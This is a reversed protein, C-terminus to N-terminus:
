YPRYVSIAICKGDAIQFEIGAHDDNYITVPKKTKASIDTSIKQINPFYKQISELSSGNGIHDATMFYGSTITIHDVMIVPHEEGFNQTYFYVDTENTITDTGRVFPKSYWIAVSKGGMSADGAAPTGLRKMVADEKEDISTLGISKGPIILRSAPVPITDPLSIIQQSTDTATITNVSDKITDNEPATKEKSNNCCFFFIAIAIIVPVPKM